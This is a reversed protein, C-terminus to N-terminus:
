KKCRNFNAYDINEVIKRNHIINNYITTLTNFNCNMTDYVPTFSVENRDM